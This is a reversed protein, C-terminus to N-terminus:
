QLGGSPIKLQFEACIKALDAANFPRNKEPWKEMLPAVARVISCVVVHGCRLCSKEFPKTLDIGAGIQEQQAKNM